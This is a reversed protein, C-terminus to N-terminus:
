CERIQPNGPDTRYRYDHHLWYGLGAYLHVAPANESSVQLYSREAGHAAGWDRLARMIRRAHGQRRHAPLVEVAGVGLWGDDVVGRGVAVITGKAQLHAFGVRPHRQLVGRAAPTDARGSRYVALWADTLAPEITVPPGPPGADSAPLRLADLRAALVHIDPSPAWGREGLEADLLRRAEIPLQFRLPLGRAAYWRHAEALAEDLPLGPSRQALVSNARGTFGGAARLTWGGLEATQEARWGRAATAELALEDATSPPVVRALAVATVPVEMLGDRTAVVAVEGDLFLLDGVVDSFRERGQAGRGVKRRVSVRRGVWSPQVVLPM